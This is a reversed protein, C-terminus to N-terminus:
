ITSHYSSKSPSIIKQSTYSNELYSMVATLGYADLLHYIIAAQEAAQRTKTTPVLGIRLALKRKVFSLLTDAVLRVDEPNTFDVPLVLYFCDRRVTPLQGPYTRQLM